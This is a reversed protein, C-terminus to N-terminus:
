LLVDQKADDEESGVVAQGRAPLRRQSRAAERRIATQSQLLFRFSKQVMVQSIPTIM